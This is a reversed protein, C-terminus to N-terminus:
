QPPNPASRTAVVAVVRGIVTTVRVNGRSNRGIAVMAASRASRVTAARSVASTEVDAGAAVITALVRNAREVAVAPRKLKLPLALRPLPAAVAVGAGVTAKVVRIAREGARSSAAVVLGAPRM